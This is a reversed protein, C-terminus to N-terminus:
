SLKDSYFDNFTSLFLSRNKDLISNDRFFSEMKICINKRWKTKTLIDLKAVAEIKQVFLTQDKLPIDWGLSQRDLNQWPTQNSILVPTGVSLSEAIVHGYNEGLTPFFFLDYQSFINLVAEHTVDGCYKVKINKPINAILKQCAAWYAKDVIPGYIDFFVRTKVKYLTKLAYDLNKKPSIRSLFLIKYFFSTKKCVKIKSIKPMNSAIHIRSSKVKLVRNIDNFEQVNSAHWVINKYLSIFSTAKIYIFKKTSKLNLAGASFEGRPALIVPKKPLWGLFRAILPRITAIPDFYSNLYMIDYSTNNIIRAMRTISANDPSFYYIHAKGVKQWKNIIVGSYPIKDSLDRDRTIIWFDFYDHLNDVMNSITRIPGGAKYGPLYFPALCLIKIKM